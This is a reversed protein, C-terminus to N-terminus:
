GWDDWGIPTPIPKAYRLAPTVTNCNVPRRDRTDCIGLHSSVDDKDDTDIVLPAVALLLTIIIIIVGAGLLIRNREQKNENM